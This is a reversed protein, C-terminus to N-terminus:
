GRMRERAPAPLEAPLQPVNLRAGAIRIAEGILYKGDETQINDETHNM